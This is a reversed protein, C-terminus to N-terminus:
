FYVAIKRGSLFYLSTLVIHLVLGESLTMGCFWSSQAKSKAISAHTRSLDRSVMYCCFHLLSSHRVMQLNRCYM